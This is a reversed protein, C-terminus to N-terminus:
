SCIKPLISVHDERLRRREQLLNFLDGNAYETIVCFNRETEFSDYLRIINEHDLTRLISIEQRLSKIERYPVSLPPSQILAKSPPRAPAGPIALISPMKGVHSPVM